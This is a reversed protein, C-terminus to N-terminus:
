SGRAATRSAQEPLPSIATITPLFAIADFSDALSPLEYYHEEDHEAEYLGSILRTRWPQDFRDGPAASRLEVIRAGRGEGDGGGGSYGGGDSDGGGGDGGDLLWAELSTPSPSPIETGPIRGRGFAIHVATYGDGLAARLHAGMMVSGHKAVHASGEWLVVRAGTRRQRDLLREAAAREAREADYGSGPANAHFDVMADVLRLAEDYGPGGGLGAVLDRATRALEVFPVGPHTGHLRLVHEGSAHATRIVEFLEDVRTAIARDMAALLAVVRDYDAPLTAPGAIGIIRVPDDPHRENHRRFRVLADRMEITRWPGWAQALAADLDVDEGRVYRDYLDGVRQNDLLAVVRFGRQIM